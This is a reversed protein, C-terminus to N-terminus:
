AGPEGRALRRTGWVFLALCLVAGLGFLGRAVAVNVADPVFPLGGSFHEASGFLAVWGGILGFALVTVGAAASGVASGPPALVALGALAFVAGCAGLVWRPAHVASPDVAIVDAAVGVIALGAAVFALGFWLPPRAPHDM